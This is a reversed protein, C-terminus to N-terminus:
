SDKMAAWQSIQPLCRATFFLTLWEFRFVLLMWRGLRRRTCAVMSPLGACTRTHVRHRREPRTDFAAYAALAGGLASRLVPEYAVSDNTAPRAQGDDTSSRLRM